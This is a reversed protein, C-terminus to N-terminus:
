LRIARRSAPLPASLGASSRVRQAGNDLFSTASRVRCHVWSLMTPSLRALDDVGTRELYAAFQRLFFRYHHISSQRLGKEETLYRLLGPAQREFPNDPKHLRRRGIYGPVALRLMQRIPNRVENGLQKRRRVSCRGGAREYIWAQVFPEVHDPLNKVESAGHAKAFEGFSVM